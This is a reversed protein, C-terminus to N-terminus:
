TRPGGVRDDTYAAIFADWRRIATCRLCTCTPDQERGGLAARLQRAMALLRDGRAEAQLCSARWNIGVGSATAADFHLVACVRHFPVGCDTCRYVDAETDIAKGCGVADAPHSPNQGCRTV